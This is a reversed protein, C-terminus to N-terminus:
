SIVPFEPASDSIIKLLDHRSIIGVLKGEHTIPLRLIQNDIFAKIIPFISSNQDATITDRTMIESVLTTKLNKKQMYLQLLDSESVIGVVINNEVVPLGSFHTGNLKELVDHASSDPNACVVPRIMVDSAKISNLKEIM